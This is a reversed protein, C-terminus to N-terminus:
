SQMYIGRTSVPWFEAKILETTYAVDADRLLRVCDLECIQFSDDHAFVAAESVAGGSDITRAVALMMDYLAAYAKSPNKM